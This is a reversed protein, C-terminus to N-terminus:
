NNDCITSSMYFKPFYKIGEGISLNYMINVCYGAVIWSAVSLQPPPIKGMEEKYKEKIDELWLKSNGWFRSYQTVYNVVRLEFQEYRDSLLRLNPGEPDIITIFAAWGFNYPHLVPIGKKQCLDDFQFPIDSSFDLANIAIDFNDLIKEVNDKDIYTCISNIEAKPNINQLREALAEVKYRGIDADKYNQRNLNSIEVKDGDVITLNEFGFRLACEAIISGIGAGGIIVRKRKVIEQKNDDLYIRNRLYRPEM